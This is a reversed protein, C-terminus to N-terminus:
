SNDGADEGPSEDGSSEGGKLNPGEYAKKVMSWAPVRAYTVNVKAINNGGRNAPDRVVEVPFIMPWVDLGVPLVPVDMSLSGLSIRRGPAYMASACVKGLEEFVLGGGLGKKEEYGRIGEQWAQHFAYVLGREDELYQVQLYPLEFGSPFPVKLTSFQVMNMAFKSSPLTVKEALGSVYMMALSGLVASVASGWRSFTEGLAAVSPSLLFLFSWERRPEWTLLGPASSYGSLFAM